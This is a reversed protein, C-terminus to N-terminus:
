VLRLSYPHEDSAIDRARTNARVANIKYMPRAQHHRSTMFTKRTSADTKFFRNRIWTLIALEFLAARQTWESLIDTM